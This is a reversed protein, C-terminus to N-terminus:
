IPNENLKNKFSIWFVQGAVEEEIDVYDDVGCSEPTLSYSSEYPDDTTLDLLQVKMDDPRNQIKEKLDKITLMNHLNVAALLQESHIGYAANVAQISGSFCFRTHPEQFSRANIGCSHKALGNYCMRESAYYWFKM